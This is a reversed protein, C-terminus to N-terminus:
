PVLTDYHAVFRNRTLECAIFELPMAPAYCAIGRGRGQM